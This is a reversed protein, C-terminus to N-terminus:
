QEGCEAPSELANKGLIGIGAVDIGPGQTGDHLMLVAWHFGARWSGYVTPFDESPTEVM